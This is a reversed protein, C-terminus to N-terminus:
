RTPSSRTRRSWFSRYAKRLGTSFTSRLALVTARLPRWRARVGQPLLARSGALRGRGTGLARPSGVAFGCRRRRDARHARRIRPPLRWLEQRHAGRRGAPLFNRAAARAPGAICRPARECLPALFALAQKANDTTARGFSAVQRACWPWIWEERDAEALLSNIDRFAARGDGLNFLINVRWGAVASTRGLQRETLVVRDFHALAENYRGTRHYHEGLASHAEPLDPSLRLAEQYHAVAGDEDGLRELTTGLNKFTQAALDPVAMTDADALAAEYAAKAQDDDDLASFANGITYYLSGPQYTRQDLKARFHVIADAIRQPAESRRAMGLNIEAMYAPGMADDDHGLVATFKDFAASINADAGRQYLQQLIQAAADPADPVHVDAISHKVIAPVDAAHATSQATRRDRSSTAGSRALAALTQLRKGTLAESFPVTLTQQETWRKGGHEYRRLVREASCILLSDTPLHYCAYFSHPHMLLYNLNARGVEVGISGDANLARETGKLQVHIRVNTARDQDVVEIQCDTGYDKRDASQVVFVGSEALRTKFAAEAHEDIAHNRGRKPFDDFHSM